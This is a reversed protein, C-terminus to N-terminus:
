LLKLLVDILYYPVTIRYEVSGDDSEESEEMEVHYSTKKMFEDMVQLLETIEENTQTLVTVTVNDITYM